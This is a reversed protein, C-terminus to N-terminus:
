LANRGPVGTGIKVNSFDETFSIQWTQLFKSMLVTM